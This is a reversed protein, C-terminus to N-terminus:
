TNYYLVMNSELREGVITAKTNRRASGLRISKPTVPTVTKMTKVGEHM